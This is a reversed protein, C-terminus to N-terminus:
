PASRPTRTCPSRRRSSTWPTRPTRPDRGPPDPRDRRGQWRLLRAWCVAPTSKQPDPISFPCSAARCALLKRVPAGLCAPREGDIQEEVASLSEHDPPPLTASSLTRSSMSAPASTLTALGSTHSSIRFASRSSRRSAAQPALEDFDSRSPMNRTKAADSSRIRLRRTM